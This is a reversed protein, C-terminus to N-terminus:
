VEEDEDEDADSAAVRCSRLLRHKRAILNHRIQSTLKTKREHYHRSVKAYTYYLNFNNAIIPIPLGTILMGAVACLGGVVHGWPSKPYVDGFGVTTMTIISWWFGQPISRFTEPRSFEAYYITTSFILMGIAVLLMLLLMERMSAYMALMLVRLGRCTSSFYSLMLYIPNIAQHMDTADCTCWPTLNGVVLSTWSISWALSLAFM